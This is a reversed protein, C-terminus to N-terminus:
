RRAKFFQSSRVLWDAQEAMHRWRRAMSRLEARMDARHPPEDSLREARAAKERYHQDLNM